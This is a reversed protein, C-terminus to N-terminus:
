RSSPVYIPIVVPQPVFVPNVWGPSEFTHVGAAILRDYVQTVAHSGSLLGGIECAVVGSETQIQLQKRGLPGSVLAVGPLSATEFTMDQRFAKTIRDYSLLHIREPTQAFVGSVFDVNMRGGNASAFTSPAYLTLAGPGVGAAKEIEASANNLPPPTAACAALVLCAYLVSAIRHMGASLGM